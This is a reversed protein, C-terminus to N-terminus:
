ERRQQVTVVPRRRLRRRLRVSDDGSRVAGADLFVCGGRELATQLAFLRDTRMHPTDDVLEVRRITRESVGSETVLRKLSWGLLARAARHQAGTIM